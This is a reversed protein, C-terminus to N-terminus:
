FPARQLDLCAISYGPRSVLSPYMKGKNVQLIRRDELSSESSSRGPGRSQDPQTDPCSQRGLSADTNMAEQVGVDWDRCSCPLLPIPSQLTQLGQDRVRLMLLLPFSKILISTLM